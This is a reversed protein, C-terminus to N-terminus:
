GCDVEDMNVDAVVAYPYRAVFRAWLAEPLRRPEVPRGIERIRKVGMKMGSSYGLDLYVAALNAGEHWAFGAEMGLTREESKTDDLVDSHAYLLHSAFPAEGRRLCDLMCLRAYFQNRTFDGSLPSEVIVRKL